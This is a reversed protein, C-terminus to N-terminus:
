CILETASLLVLITKLWKSIVLYNVKGGIYKWNITKETVTSLPDSWLGDIYCSKGTSQMKKHSSSSLNVLRKEAVTNM